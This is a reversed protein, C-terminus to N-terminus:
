AGGDDEVAEGLDEGDGCSLAVERSSATSDLQKVRQMPDLEDGLRCVSVM